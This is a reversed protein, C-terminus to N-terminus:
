MEAMKGGRWAKLYEDWNLATLGAPAIAKTVSNSDAQVDPSPSQACALSTTSARAFM